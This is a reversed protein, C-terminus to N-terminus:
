PTTALGDVLDLSRVRTSREVETLCNELCVENPASAEIRHFVSWGCCLRTFAYIGMAYSLPELGHRVLPFYTTLPPSAARGTVSVHPGFRATIDPRAVRLHDSTSASLHTCCGHRVNLAASLM